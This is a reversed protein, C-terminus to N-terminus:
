KKAAQKDAKAQAYEKTQKDVKIVGQHQEIKVLAAQSFKMNSFILKELTLEGNSLIKVPLNMKAILGAKFLTLPSITAGDQFRKNLSELKVIQAKPQQSKFGRAKPASLIMKKMGLRKLGSVGSRAKQGKIGRTSYTGHGSADGRGVRKKTKQKNAKLNHLTLSM